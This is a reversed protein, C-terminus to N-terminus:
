SFPNNKWILNNFESKERKREREGRAFFFFVKKRSQNETLVVIDFNKVGDGGELVDGGVVKLHVRENLERLSGLSADARSKGVDSPNLYFNSSLDAISVPPMM